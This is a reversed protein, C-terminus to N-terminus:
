IRPTHIKVVDLNIARVENELLEAVSPKTRGSDGTILEKIYLGTEARIRLGLRRRGLLEFSIAKVSRKRFRDARRHLVRLPTKQLIPEKTLERLNRLKRRDLDRRFSVIVSYSKDVRMFKIRRIMEKSTFKLGRVRVARSKNIESSVAKLDIARKRPKVLEIVFPRYDLCRADIDERGMASLKSRRAKAV